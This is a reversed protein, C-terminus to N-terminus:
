GPAKTRTARDELKIPYPRAPRARRKRTYGDRAMQGDLKAVIASFTLPPEDANKILESGMSM